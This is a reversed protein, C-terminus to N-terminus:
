LLGTCMPGLCKQRHCSQGLSLQTHLHCPQKAQPSGPLTLHAPVHVAAPTIDRDCEKKSGRTAPSWFAEKALRERYSWGNLCKLTNGQRPYKETTRHMLWKIFCGPYPGVSYKLTDPMQHAMREINWSGIHAHPLLSAITIVRGGICSEATDGQKWPQGAKRWLCEGGYDGEGYGRLRDRQLWCCGEGLSQELVGLSSNGAVAGELPIQTGTQTHSPCPSDSEWELETWNLWEITDSEKHGWSDYCALGGQGNGDGPTLESERGDLWHHWGALWGRDDGEGGAGLGEWCWLRKWHTLEKCSTAM